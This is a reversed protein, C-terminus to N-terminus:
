LINDIYEIFYLPVNIIAGDKKLNNISFILCKHFNYKDSYKILSNNNKNSKVEIPIIENKYEIVFDIENRDFTFYSLSNDFLTTLAHCVYNETFAGNFEEFMKNGEIIIRSDLNSMRRLLGIDNIYIKIDDLKLAELDSYKIIPFDNNTINYIKYILHSDSLWNIADEEKIINAYDTDQYIFNKKEKTLRMPTDNWILSIKTAQNEKTCKLFDRSYSDLINKQIDNVKGIDKENVWSYVVEPMGGVIFYIKLKEILMDEFLKPINEISHISKMFEVLNECGDAVLFESFTMPYLNLFDAYALVKAINFSIQSIRLPYFSCAGVVHYSSEKSFYKLAFLADWCEQIEDFIILTNEKEIETGDVCSLQELISDLDKSNEFIRYLSKDSEFNFYAINKYYKEGFEKLIYTKGVGRAGRLILPIHAENNKWKILDNMIKRKVYM